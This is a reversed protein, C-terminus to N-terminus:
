DGKLATEVPTPTTKEVERVLSGDPQRIYSGGEAPLPQRAPKALTRGLSTSPNPKKTM